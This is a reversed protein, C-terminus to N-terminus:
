EFKNKGIEAGGWEVLTFGSRTFAPLLQEPLKSVGNIDDIGSFEMFVRITTEAKPQTEIVSSEDINDNIRFHVFCNEYKSMVPLWFVIFDNIEKENLGIMMLKNQLFSIYNENKVYFGSKFQYHEPSFSYAGDWFLYNYYRNDKVNLLTGNPNAIVKWNDTYQPYTNLIKGKFNHTVIIETKQIPYLYIAPKKLFVEPKLLVKIPGDKIQDLKIVQNSDGSVFEIYSYEQLKEESITIDFNSTKSDLILEGKAGPKADKLLYVQYGECKEIDYLPGSYKYVFVEGLINREQSMTQINKNRSNVHNAATGSQSMQAVYVYASDMGWYSRPYVPYIAMHYTSKPQLIGYDKGAIGALHYWPGSKSMGEVYLVSDEGVKDGTWTVGHIKEPLKYDKAEMALYKELDAHLVALSEQFESLGKLDEQQKRFEIWRQHREIELNIAVITAGLCQQKLNEQEFTDNVEGRSDQAYCVSGFSLILIALFVMCSWSVSKRMIRGEKYKVM